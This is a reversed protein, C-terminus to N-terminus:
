LGGCCNRELREGRGHNRNINKTTTTTTAIFQNGVESAFLTRDGLDVVEVWPRTNNCELKLVRFGKTKPPNLYNHSTIRPFLNFPDTVIMFLEVSVSDQALSIYGTDTLHQIVQRSRIM